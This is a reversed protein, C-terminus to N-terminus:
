NTDKDLPSSPFTRDQSKPSDNSLSNENPNVVEELDTSRFCGTKKSTALFLLMQRKNHRKIRTYTTVFCLLPHYARSHHELAAAKLRHTVVGKPDFPGKMPSAKKRKTDPQTRPNMNEQIDEKSIVLGKVLIGEDESAEEYRIYTLGVQIVKCSKEKEKDGGTGNGDTLTDHKEM